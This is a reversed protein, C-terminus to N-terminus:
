PRQYGAAAELVLAPQGPGIAGAAQRQGVVVQTCNPLEDMEGGGGGFGSATVVMAPLPGFSTALAALLM